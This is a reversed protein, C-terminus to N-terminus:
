ETEFDKFLTFTRLDRYDPSEIQDPFDDPHNSLLTMGRAAQEPTMYMNYGLMTIDDEHYSLGPTRGEYRKQKLWEVAEPNDLLIMGGKGIPIAKKYHFSLCMMSGPIYMDRKLRKASDYIGYPKLEYIGQWKEERCKVEGGANMIAQPVSLYTRCPISVPNDWFAVDAFECALQLANTCSDVAVAYPAGTFEAMNEEFMSVVKFPHHKM